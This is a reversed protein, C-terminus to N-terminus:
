KQEKLMVEIVRPNEAILKMAEAAGCGEPHPRDLVRMMTSLEGCGSCKFMTTGDPMTVLTTMRSQLMDLYEEANM